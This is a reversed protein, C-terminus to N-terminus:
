PAVAPPFPLPAVSKKWTLLTIRIASVYNKHFKHLPLPLVAISHHFDPMVSHPNLVHQQIM